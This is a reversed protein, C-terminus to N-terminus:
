RFAPTQSILASDGYNYDRRVLRSAKSRCCLARRSYQHVEAFFVNLWWDMLIIMFAISGKM